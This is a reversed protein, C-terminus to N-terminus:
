AGKTVGKLSILGTPLPTFGKIDKSLVFPWPQHYLYIIPLEDQLVSQADDYLKKRADFDPTVKAQNLDKDVQDNCLGAYNLGAKCVVFDHINGDPDYRGSWGTLLADFNGQQAQQLMTTFEVAHLKIDFGAEAAMAQIMEAIQESTTSNAFMLEFSVRDVGAEKLLAKAKAVDRTTVPFATDHYPSIPTFPQQAPEFTGAGVVDNIVNRDIALELAQRVRKDKALPGSARNGNGVNITIGQYGVSTIQALQLTPDSKVSPIDTPALRELMDLGGSKLNALRVTTDPMIMFTVKDFHYDAANRYDAFKELTISYNQQRTVFKYPGSCVPATVASDFSAPSLMMGARNSLQPLLTPDPQKLKIKFSLNDLVDVSVVSQLESKRMSDPMTRARDLNAKVAAADIPKEDHFKLNPLLTMTLETKDASWSWKEVLEPKAELDAGVAVLSDCLSEFVVEGVFTRSRAPDLGDLDDQLGIKLESASAGSALLMAGMIPLLYSFRM